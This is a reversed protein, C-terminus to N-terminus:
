LRFGIWSPRMLIVLYSVMKDIKPYLSEFTEIYQEIKEDDEGTIRDSDSHGNLQMKKTPPKIVDDDDDDSVM